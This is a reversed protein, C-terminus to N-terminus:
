EECILLSMPIDHANPVVDSVLQWPYSIGVKNGSTGELLRDYVGAGFGIRNGSRDFALGPVLYLDILTKTDGVARASVKPVGFEDSGEIELPRELRRFEYDNGSVQVPVYFDKEESEPSDLLPLLSVENQIPIYIAVHRADKYVAMAELKKCLAASEEAVNEASLARRKAQM